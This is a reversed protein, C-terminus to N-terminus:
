KVRVAVSYGDNWNHEFIEKLLSDKDIVTSLIGWYEDNIYVPYRYILASGGQVLNIPGAMVGERSEIAMKVLPWQDPLQRYDLTLAKENGAIPYIFQMQYDKAIGFNRIYKADKYLTALMIEVKEPNLEDHYASLFSSMGSSLYILANLESNLQSKLNNAHDALKVANLAEIKKVEAQIFSHLITLLFIFSVLTILLISAYRKIADCFVGLSWLKM